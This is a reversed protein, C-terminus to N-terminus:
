AVDAARAGAVAVSVTLTLGTFKPDTLRPELLVACDTGTTNRM